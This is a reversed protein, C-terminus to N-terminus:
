NLIVCLLKKRSGIFGAKTEQFTPINAAKRRFLISKINIMMVCVYLGRLKM